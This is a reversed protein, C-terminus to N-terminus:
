LIGHNLQDAKMAELFDVLFQVNAVVYSAGAGGFLNDGVYAAAFPHAGGAPFLHSEAYAGVAFALDGEVLLVLLVYEIRYGPDSSAPFGV